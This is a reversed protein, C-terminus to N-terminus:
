TKYRFAPSTSPRSSLPTTRNRSNSLSPVLIFSSPVKPNFQFQVLDGPNAQINEPSFALTGNPGGVQIVHTPVEGAGAMGSAAPAAASAPALSESAAIAASSAAGMEGALHSTATALGLLASVIYSRSFYM